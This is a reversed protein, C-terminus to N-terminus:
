VLNRERGKWGAQVARAGAIRILILTINYLELRSQLKAPLYYVM